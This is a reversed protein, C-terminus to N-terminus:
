IGLLEHFKIPKAPSGVATCSSPIDEIVTSGAGIIAWEGISVGPTVTTGAGVLTGVGIRTNGTITTRPSIHVYADIKCDHEIIAGTNVISHNDIISNANIVSNPMVVTGNKITVSESIVATPHILIAYREELLGLRQIMKLRTTNDGISIIFRIDRNRSLLEQFFSIPGYTINNQEFVESIVDDLIAILQYQNSAAIIDKIVSGHGGNGILVIPKMRLGEKKSGKFKEITVQGQQSIGESKIVKVVTMFLIKIDLWFTHHDVYWLDLKFKEEWSIANRGNVQAWGTIGPRVEHRRAQSPSYLDLYEMLLPRPGVLSIDGKLVNFLQPLEDLSFKRLLQGFPTLRISDPLLEGYEDCEDTMTRFKYVLFPKGHLGPRQQKFVIPSGLKSRILLATIVIIPSLVIMGLLACIFDFFRKM